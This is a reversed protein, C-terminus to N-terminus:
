HPSRIGALILLLGGVDWGAILVCSGPNFPCCHSDLRRPMLSSRRGSRACYCYHALCREAIKCYGKRWRERRQNYASIFMEEADLLSSM